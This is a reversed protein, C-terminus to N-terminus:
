NLSHHGMDTALCWTGDEDSWSPEQGPRLCVLGAHIAHIFVTHGGMRVGFLDVFKKAFSRGENRNCTSCSRFWWLANQHFIKRKSLSVWSPTDLVETTLEDQGIFVKGPSGHGWFQVERILEGSDAIQNLERVVQDWSKARIVRDFKNVAEFFSSGVAWSISAFQDRTSEHENTSDYILVSLGKKPNLVQQATSLLPDMQITHDVLTEVVNRGTVIDKVTNIPATVQPFPNLSERAAQFVNKGSAVDVIFKIGFVM